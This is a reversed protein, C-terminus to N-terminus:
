LLNLVCKRDFYTYFTFRIFRPTENIKKDIYNGIYEMTM